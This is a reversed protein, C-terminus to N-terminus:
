DGVYVSTEPHQSKWEEWTTRQFPHDRLPATEANQTFYQEGLKLLMDDGGWGGLYLDIAERRQPDTFVRACDTRDCYTISIPVEAACDNVVHLDLGKFASLLYARPEDGILVGIVEADPGLDAEQSDRLTPMKVGPTIFPTAYDTPSPMLAMQEPTFRLPHPRKTAFIVVLAVVAGAIVVGWVLCKLPTLNM